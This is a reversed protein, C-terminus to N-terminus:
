TKPQVGNLLSLMTLARRRHDYWTFQKTIQEVRKHSEKNIEAKDEVVPIRLVVTLGASYFPPLGLEELKTLCPSHKQVSANSSKLSLIGLIKKKFPVNLELAQIAEKIDKQNQFYKDPVSTLNANTPEQLYPLEEPMIANFLIQVLKTM